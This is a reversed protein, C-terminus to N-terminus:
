QFLMLMAGPGFWLPKRGPAKTSSQLFHATATTKTLSHLFHARIPPAEKWPQRLKLRVIWDAEKTVTTKISSHLFYGRINELNRTFFVSNITKALIANQPLTSPTILVSRPYRSGNDVLFMTEQSRLHTLLSSQSSSSRKM